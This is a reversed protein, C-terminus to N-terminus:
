FVIIGSLIIAGLIVIISSIIKQLIDKTEKLYKIGSFVAILISSEIIPVVISADTLKFARLMLYYYASGLLITSITAALTNKLISKIEKKKRLAFPMLVLAPIFYVLFSYMGPKFYNTAFKDVILVISMLFSSLLTLLVGKDKLNIFYKGKKYNLVLIGVIILLTGIIKETTLVEKLFIVSFLLVFVSKIKGIPTKKSVELHKYAQFGTFAVSAWLISSVLVLLWAMNLEPLEFEIIFFPLFVLATFVHWIFAYGLSDEDILIYRHLVKETGKFVAAFLAFIIGIM